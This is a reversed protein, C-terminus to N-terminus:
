IIVYIYLAINGVYHGMRHIYYAQLLNVDVVCM